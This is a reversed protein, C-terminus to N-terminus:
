GKSEADQPANGAQARPHSHDYVQMLHDLTVQTYRQTTALRKHGLLEQVSRLDAGAELLHTAFSHRLAHPSIHEPIRANRCLDELRRTAERRNMRGGRMGVFLASEEPRALVSRLALWANLATVSTDSLPCLREKAGKGLVRVTRGGQVAAVNLGLAESVRLGSGYLLEALAIDAAHRARTRADQPQGDPAPTDLLAFAQDVNLMQPHHHEQRPNRVGDAPNRGLLGRRMLYHFFSRIAALKRSSSSKAEAARFLEGLFGQVHRRTIGDPADLDGGAAQVFAAFQALDVRYAALTAPSYGKEVRLWEVFAQLLQPSEDTPLEKRM